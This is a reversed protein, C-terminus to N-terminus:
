TEELWKQNSMKERDDKEYGKMQSGRKRRLRKCEYSNEVCKKM